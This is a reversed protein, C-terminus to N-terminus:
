FPLDNDLPDRTSRQEPAPPRQMLAAPRNRNLRDVQADIYFILEDEHADYIAEYLAHLCDLVRLTQRPTWRDHLDLNM